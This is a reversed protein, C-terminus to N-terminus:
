CSIGMDMGRYNVSPSYGVFVQQTYSLCYQTAKTAGLTRINGGPSQLIDKYGDGFEEKQANM